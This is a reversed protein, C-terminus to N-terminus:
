VTVLWTVLGAVIVDSVEIQTNIKKQFVDVQLKLQPVESLVGTVQLDRDVFRRREVELGAQLELM